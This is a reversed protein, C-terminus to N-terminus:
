IFDHRFAERQFLSRVSRDKKPAIRAHWNSSVGCTLVWGGAVTWTVLGNDYNLQLETSGASSLFWGTIYRSGGLSAVIILRPSSLLLAYPLYRHSLQLASDAPTTHARTHLSLSLIRSTACRQVKSHLVKSTTLVLRAGCHKRNERSHRPSYWGLLRM